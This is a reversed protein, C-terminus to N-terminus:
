LPHDCWEMIGPGKNSIPSATPSTTLTTKSYEQAALFRTYENQLYPGMFPTPLEQPWDLGIEAYYQRYPGYDEGAELNFFHYKGIQATTYGATQLQRFLTALHSPVEARHLQELIWAPSSLTWKGLFLPCGYLRPFRHLCQRLAPRSEGIFRPTADARNPRRCLWCALIGNTRLFLSSIRSTPTPNVM